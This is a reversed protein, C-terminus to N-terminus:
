KHQMLIKSFLNNSYDVALYFRFCHRWTIKHFCALFNSFCTWLLNHLPFFLGLKRQYSFQFFMFGVPSNFVFAALCIRFFLGLSHLNACFGAWSENLLSNFCCFHWLIQFFAIRLVSIQLFYAWFVLM